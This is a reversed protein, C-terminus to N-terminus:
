LLAKLSDVLPIDAEPMPYRSLDKVDVWELAAHELTKPEGKWSSCLFLPMLLHFDKYSHSAFAIPKLAPAEIKIGLEEKM